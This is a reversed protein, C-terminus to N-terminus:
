RADKKTVTMISLITSYFFFAGLIIYMFIMLYEVVTIKGNIYYGHVMQIFPYYVGVVEISKYHVPKNLLEIAEKESMGAVNKIKKRRSKKIPDEINKYLGFLVTVTETGDDINVTSFNVQGYTTGKIEGNIKVAGYSLNSINKQPISDHAVVAYISIIINILLALTIIAQLPITIFSIAKM